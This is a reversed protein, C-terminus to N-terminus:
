VDLSILQTVIQEGDIGNTNRKLLLAFELEWDTKDKSPIVQILVNFRKGIINRM